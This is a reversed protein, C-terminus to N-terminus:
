NVVKEESMVNINYSTFPFSGVADARHNNTEPLADGKSIHSSIHM